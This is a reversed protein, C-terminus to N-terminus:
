PCVPSDSGLARKPAKDGRQNLSLRLWDFGESNELCAPSLGRVEDQRLVKIRSVTSGM